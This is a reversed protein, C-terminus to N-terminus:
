GVTCHPPQRVRSWRPSRPSLSPVTPPLHPGGLGPCSKTEAGPRKYSKVATELGSAELTGETPSGGLRSEPSPSHTSARASGPGKPSPSRPTQETGHSRRTRKGEATHGQTGLGQGGGRPGGSSPTGEVAAAWGVATFNALTGAQLDHHLNLQPWFVGKGACRLGCAPDAARPPASPPNPDVPLAGPLRSCLPQTRGCPKRSSLAPLDWATHGPALSGQAPAAPAPTPPWPIHSLIDRHPTPRPAPHLGSGLWTQPPHTQTPPM